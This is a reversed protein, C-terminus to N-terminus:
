KIIWNENKPTDSYKQKKYEHTRTYKNEKIRENDYEQIMTEDHEHSRAHDFRTSTNKTPQIQTNTNKYYSTRKCRRITTDYYEQPRTHDHKPIITTNHNWTQIITHTQM